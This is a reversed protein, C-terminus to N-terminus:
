LSFNSMKSLWSEQQYFVTRQTYVTPTIPTFHDALEFLPCQTCQFFTFLNLFLILDASLLVPHSSLTHKRHSLFSSTTGQYVQASWGLDNGASQRRQGWGPLWGVHHVDRRRGASLCSVDMLVCVCMIVVLNVSSTHSATFPLSHKPGCCSRQVSVSLAAASKM